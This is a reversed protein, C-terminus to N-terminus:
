KGSASEITGRIITHLLETTNKGNQSIKTLRDSVTDMAAKITGVDRTLAEHRVVLADHRLALNRQRSMVLVFGLTIIVGVLVLVILLTPAVGPAAPNMM